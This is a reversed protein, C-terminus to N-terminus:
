CHQNRNSAQSTEASEGLSEGAGLAVQGRSTESAWVRQRSAIGIGANADSLVVAEVTVGFGKLIAQSHLSHASGKTIAYFESEGTSLARVSQTSSGFEIPSRGYFEAVGSTSRLMTERAAFDADVFM